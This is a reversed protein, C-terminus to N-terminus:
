LKSIYKAISEIEADNFKSVQSKMLGKMSGGYTGAQYGKLAEVTKSAEWGQIVQSKGLAKREASAGHCASCAKYLVNGSKTVSVVKAVEEKTINSIDQVKELAKPVVEEEVTKTIEVVKTTTSGVVSKLTDQQEVVKKPEVKQVEQKEEQSSCGVLLLALAVSLAIKM